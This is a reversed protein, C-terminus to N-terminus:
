VPGPRNNPIIGLIRKSEPPVPQPPRQPTVTEAGTLDEFSARQGFSVSPWWAPAFLIIPLIIGNTM